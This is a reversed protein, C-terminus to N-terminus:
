LGPPLSGNSEALGATVGAVGLLAAVLKAAQHVSVRHSHVTQRLSNGSLTAAAIQVRAKQAQTWCALWEAVSGCIFLYTLLYHLGILREKRKILELETIIRRRQASVDYRRAVDLLRGLSTPDVHPNLRLVRFESDTMRSHSGAGHLKDYSSQIRGLDICVTLTTWPNPQGM